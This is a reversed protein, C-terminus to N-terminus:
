IDKLKFYRYILIALYTLTSEQTHKSVGLIIGAIVM